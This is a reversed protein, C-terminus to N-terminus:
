PPFLQCHNVVKKKELSIKLKFLFLARMSFNWPPIERASFLPLTTQPPPVEEQEQIAGDLTQKV